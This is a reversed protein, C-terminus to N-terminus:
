RLDLISIVIFELSLTVYSVSYYMSSINLMFMFEVVVINSIQMDLTFQFMGCTCSTSNAHCLFTYIADSDVCSVCVLVQYKCLLSTEVYICTSGCIGVKM